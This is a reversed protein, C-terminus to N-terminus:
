SWTCRYECCPAGRARCTAEVVHVDRAGSLAIARELWGVATLCDDADPEEGELTRILAGRPGAQEYTRTGLSHQSAYMRPVNRLLFQPDGEKLYPRQVGNAGLNTDAAFRGMDKFVESRDGRALVAAITMELRLLVSADYWSSPLLVGRLLAQDPTSLHKLVRETREPGQARLYKMRALLLTGKITGKPAEVPPRSGEAFGM